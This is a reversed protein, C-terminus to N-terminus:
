DEYSTKSQKTELISYLESLRDDLEIVREPHGDSFAETSLEYISDEIRSIEKLISKNTRM